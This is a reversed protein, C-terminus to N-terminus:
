RCRRRTVRDRRRRGAAGPGAILWTESQALGGLGSAFAFLLVGIIFMRRRGLLDGSRGGLLLLGGFALTYGTVIWQLNQQSFDLTTQIHPLAINVVTADLVVMLQAASILVLALGLHSHGHDDAAEGTPVAQDATVTHDTM